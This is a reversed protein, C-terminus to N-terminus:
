TVQVVASDLREPVSHGEDRTGPGEAQVLGPLLVAVVVVLLEELVHGVLALEALLVEVLLDLLAFVSRVLRDVPPHALGGVVRIAASVVFAFM